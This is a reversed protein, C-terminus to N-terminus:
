RCASRWRRSARWRASPSAACAGPEQDAGARRAGEAHRGRFHRAPRAAPRAPRGRRRRRQAHLHDARRRGVAAVQRSITTQESGTDLVFDVWRGGNVQAGQRDGQGAGAQVARHPTSRAGARRGLQRAPEQLGAPVQDAGAVVGGQRQQGQQAAPQRLQHLRAAAEEYRHLRELIAGATHHIEGDRPSARLAAQVEILADDLQSRSAM